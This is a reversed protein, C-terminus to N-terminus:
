MESIRSIFPSPSPVPSKPSPTSHPDSQRSCSPANLPSAYCARVRRSPTDPRHSGAARALCLCFPIAPVGLCWALFRAVGLDRKRCAM